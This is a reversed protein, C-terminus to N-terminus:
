GPYKLGRERLSLTPTLTNKSNEVHWKDTSKVIIGKKATSLGKNDQDMDHMM